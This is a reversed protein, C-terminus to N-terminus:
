GVPELREIVGVKAFDPEPIGGWHDASEVTMPFMRPPRADTEPFEEMGFSYELTMGDPDLFYFFMSESQPHRGPGYVIPVGERKMRVNARGIDDIDTVMFNIHHLQPAAARGVGFSHHLPNPFCRMHVVAGEIRDSARFNMEGMFFDEAAKLDPGALVVHGLRAIKTHTPKYDDAATDMSAFFEMTAGFVPDSIRFAEHIGLEAAEANSVPKPNLGLTSFHERLAVLAKPSEMEWGIRKIGPEGGEVLAIDHHKDSCRFFRQGDSGGAPELGVVNEYFASSRALDSVNLALYGLRRFRLDESM